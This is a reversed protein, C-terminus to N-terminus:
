RGASSGTRSPPTCIVPRTRRDATTPAGRPAAAPPPSRPRPAARTDSCARASGRRCSGRVLGPLEEIIQRSTASATRWASRSTPSSEAPAGPADAGARRQLQVAAAARCPALRGARQHLRHPRRGPHQQRTIPAAVVFGAAAIRELTHAYDIPDNMHRALVRDRPVGRRAPDIAAGERAIEAEVKWSLPDWRDARPLPGEGHLASTYVAKPRAALRGGPRRPVVPARRGAAAREPGSRARRHARGQSRRASEAASGDHAAAPAGGRILGIM